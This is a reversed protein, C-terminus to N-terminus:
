TALPRELLTLTISVFRSSTLLSIATPSNGHPTTTAGHLPTGLRRACQEACRRRIRRCTHWKRKVGALRRVAAARFAFLFRAKCSARAPAAFPM